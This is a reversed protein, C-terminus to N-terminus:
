TEYKIRSVSEPECYWRDPYLKPVHVIFCKNRGFEGWLMATISGERRARRSATHYDAVDGYRPSVLSVAQKGVCSHDLNM